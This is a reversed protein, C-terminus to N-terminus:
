EPPQALPTQSNQPLRGQASSEQPGCRVTLRLVLLTTDTIKVAQAMRIPCAWLIREQDAFVLMRDRVTHPVRAATLFKGLRTICNQGLPQFRDGPFRSRVLVPPSVRDWDLHECFPSKDRAVKTLDVENRELIRADIEYGAFRTEGPISLVCPTSQARVARRVGRCFVVRGYDSRAEFGDPLSIGEGTARELALQLIAKYHRETVDREGCGLSVLTRRILEVAVLEPLSALQSTEIHVGDVEAHMIANWARDAEQQVRDHLRGASGALQSLDDILSGRSERQLLPLLRHRIYNRTYATDLNTHDERWPLGRERLYRVIEDRTACLLPRALSLDEALRRVPRIGALGRFGTGRRLRHVVTEANDNEQHGTAIWSCGQERAIEGLAALRLQRAATETSLRHTEAHSRVDVVRAVVPLGLETAREVVFREDADAAQGRLQHNIHGCVLPAPLRGQTRLTKLVHLLSLSDAGGSVAVLIGGAEAFIGHRRVFEFVKNELCDPM